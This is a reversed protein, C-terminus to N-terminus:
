QVLSPPATGGDDPFLKEVDHLERHSRLALRLAADEIATAGVSERVAVAFHEFAVDYLAADRAIYELRAEASLDRWLKWTGDPEELYFNNAQETKLLAKFGALKEKDNM